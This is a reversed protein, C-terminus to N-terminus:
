LSVGNPKPTRARFRRHSIDDNLEAFAPAIVGLKDRGATQKKM